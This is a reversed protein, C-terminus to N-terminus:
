RGALLLRVTVEFGGEALNRCEIGGGMQELFYRALYLGLGSGNKGQANEGRYFKNCILPLSTEPVGPGCDAIQVLLSEPLFAYEVGIATDAYKYSNNFINDFVQALRLTDIRLMCPPAEGIAARRNYDAARLLSAICESSEECPTVKLKQLEELSAHFLDTVLSTIQRAKEGITELSKQKEEDKERILMLESIAQISAVPTKIDHSLSAVLEKKSQNALYENEKARALESRMLDFSETFPGFLNERDMKLPIDLNGAAVHQAFESLTKFPKFFIHRLYLAYGACFLLPILLILLGAFILAQRQGELAAPAPNTFIVNGVLKGGSFVDLIIDRHRIADPLSSDAHPGTAALTKGDLRLVAYDLGYEMGPLSASSLTGWRESVSQVVDNCAVVDPQQSNDTHLIVMLLVAGCVLFAAMFAWLPKLRM